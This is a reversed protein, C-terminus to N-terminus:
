PIPTIQLLNINERMRYITFEISINKRKTRQMYNIIEQNNCIETIEKLVNNMEQMVEIISDNTIPVYETGYKNKDDFKCWVGDHPEPDFPQIEQEEQPCIIITWMSSHKEGGMIGEGLGHTMNIEAKNTYLTIKGFIFPITEELEQLIVAIRITKLFNKLGIGHIVAKQAADESLISLVVDVIAKKTPEEDESDVKFPVSKFAGGFSFDERDGYNTSSRLYACNFGKSSLTSIINNIIKDILNELIRELKIKIPKELKYRYDIIENKRLSTEVKEWFEEDLDSYSQDLEIIREWTVDRVADNFVHSPIVFGEPVNLGKSILWCLNKAKNGIDEVSKECCKELPILTM